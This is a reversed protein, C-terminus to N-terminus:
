KAKRLKIRFLSMEDLEFNVKAGHMWLCWLRYFRRDFMKEISSQHKELNKIWEAMTRIYDPTDDRFEEVLFGADKAAESIEDKAPLYGEPFVYKLTWRDVRKPVYRGTLQVIFPAGNKLVSKIKHFFPILNKQGVHEISEIMVIGDFKISPFNILMDSYEFSISSELHSSKTLKRCYDLQAKSLTYGTLRWKYKKAAHLAFGGWGSGLDLVYANKPLSLWKCILEIKNQQANALSESSKKYLGASYSMTNNDLIMKFFDNGLDYHYAVQYKRDKPITYNALFKAIALFPSFRVKKFLHRLRLYAEIDGEVKLSEDMFSEGFGISGQSLLKKVTAADKIILNFNSSAGSGYYRKKNNWLEISFKPGRYQNFFKDIVEIYNM